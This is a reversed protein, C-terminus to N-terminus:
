FLAPQRAHAQRDRILVFSELVGDRAYQAAWPLAARHVEDSVHDHVAAAVL